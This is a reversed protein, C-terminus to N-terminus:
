TMLRNEIIISELKEKDEKSFKKACKKFYNFSLIMCGSETRYKDLFCHKCGNGQNECWKHYNSFFLYDKFKLKM